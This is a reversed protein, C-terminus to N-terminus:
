RYKKGFILVTKKQYAQQQEKAIKIVARIDKVGSLVASFQVFHADTESAMIRALTTKGCGPPGWLIMSFIRDNKIAHYIATGKAVAPQQGVFEDLSDPRVRDALPRTDVLQGLEQELHNVLFCTIGRDGLRNASAMSAQSILLADRDSGFVIRCGFYAEHQAIVAPATHRLHVELPAFTGAPSVERAISTASALTAENSLRLGLRRPGARQLHFWTAAGDSELTYDVVSTWLRAFRAVRAYSAGLTPAAKFALGLAGYDDLRMSAGTRLPLDTADMEAAIHELLAYYDTDAVMVKPDVPAVPDLGVSALLRARDVRPGAAAIMKSVFLSTVAGMCGIIGALQSVAYPCGPRTKQGSVAGGIKIGVRLASQPNRVAKAACGSLHQHVQTDRAFGTTDDGAQRAAAMTDVCDSLRRYHKDPKALQM